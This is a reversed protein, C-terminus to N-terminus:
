IVPSLFHGGFAGKEDSGKYVVASICPDLIGSYIEDGPDAYVWKSDELNHIM